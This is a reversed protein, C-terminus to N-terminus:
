VLLSEPTGLLTTLSHVHHIYFEIILVVCSADASHRDKPAVPKSAYPEETAEDTITNAAGTM